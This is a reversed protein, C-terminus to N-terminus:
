KRYMLGAALPHRLHFRLASGMQHQYTKDNTTSKKLLKKAGRYPYMLAYNASLGLVASCWALRALMNSKHKSLYQYSSKIYHQGLQTHSSVGTAGGWAHKVQVEPSYLLWFGQDNLRKQLDTEEKYLFFQEDFGGLDEFMKRPILMAAGVSHLPKQNSKHDQSSYVSPHAGAYLKTVMDSTLPWYEYTHGWLSPYKRYISPQSEGDLDTIQPVVMSQQHEHALDVWKQLTDSYVETDPNLFILYKGQAQKAALNNAAGFGVNHPSTIVQLKPLKRLRAVEQSSESNDVILVEFDQYTSKALSQVLRKVLEASYYNVIIISCQPKTAM